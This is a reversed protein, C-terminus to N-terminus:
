DLADYYYQYKSYKEFNNGDGLFVIRILELIIIKNLCVRLSMM